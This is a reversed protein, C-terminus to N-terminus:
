EFYCNDNLLFFSHAMLLVFLCMTLFTQNVVYQINFLTWNVENSTKSKLIHRENVTRQLEEVMSTSVSRRCVPCNLKKLKLFCEVCIVSNNCYGGCASKVTWYKDEFCITCNTSINEIKKENFFM